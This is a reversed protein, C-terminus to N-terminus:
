LRIFAAGTLPAQVVLTLADIQALPVETTSTADQGCGEVQNGEVPGRQGQRNEGRMYVVGYM